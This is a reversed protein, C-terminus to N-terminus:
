GDQMPGPGWTRSGLSVEKWRCIYTFHSWVTEHFVFVKFEFNLYEEGKFEGVKEHKEEVLTAHVVNTRYHSCFSVNSAKVTQLIPESVLDNTFKM